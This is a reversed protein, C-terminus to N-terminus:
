TTRSLELQIDPTHVPSRPSSFSDLAYIIGTQEDRIRDGVRIEVLGATLRGTTYRITRPQDSDIAFVRRTREILSAPIGSYIPAVGEEIDGYRDADLNGRFITVTTTAFFTM